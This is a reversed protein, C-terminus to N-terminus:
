QRSCDAPNSSARMAWNFSDDLRRISRPDVTRPNVDYTFDPFHERIQAADRIPNGTVAVRAGFVLAAKAPDIIRNRTLASLGNWDVTYATGDDLRLVIWTHPDKWQVSEVRGEITISKCQDYFYPHSHHAHAASAATGICIVAALIMLSRKMGAEEL